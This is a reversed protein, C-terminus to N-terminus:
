PHTRRFAIRQKMGDNFIGAQFRKEVEYGRRPGEETDPMPDFM